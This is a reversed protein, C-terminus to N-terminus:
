ATWSDVQFVDNEADTCTDVGPLILAKLRNMGFVIDTVERRGKRQRFLISWCCILAKLVAHQCQRALLCTLGWAYRSRSLATPRTGRISEGQRKNM